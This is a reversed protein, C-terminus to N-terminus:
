LREELLVDVFLQALGVGVEEEVLPPSFLDTDYSIAGTEFDNEINIM